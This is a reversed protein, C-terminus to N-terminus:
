LHLFQLFEKTVPLNRILEGQVVFLLLILITVKVFFGKLM